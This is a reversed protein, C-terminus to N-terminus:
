LDETIKLPSTNLLISMIYQIIFQVVKYRLFQNRKMSNKENNKVM